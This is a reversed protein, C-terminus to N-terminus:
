LREIEEQPRPLLGAFSPRAPNFSQSSAATQAETNQKVVNTTKKTRASILARGRAENSLTAPIGEDDDDSSSDDSKPLPRKTGRRPRTSAATVVPTPDAGLNETGNKAAGEQRTTRARRTVRSRRTSHPRTPTPRPLAASLAASNASAVDESNGEVGGEEARTSRARRTGRTRRSTRPRPPSPPPITAGPATDSTSPVNESGGAEDEDDQPAARRNGRKRPRFTAAPPAVGETAAQFRKKSVGFRQKATAVTLGLRKAISDWGKVGFGPNMDDIISMLMVKEDKKSKDDKKSRDDKSAKDVM